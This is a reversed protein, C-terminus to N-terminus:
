EAGGTVKAIATRANELWVVEWTEDDGELLHPHEEFYAVAEQLRYLLEPHGQVKAQTSM